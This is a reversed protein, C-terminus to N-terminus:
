HGLVYAIIGTSTKVGLKRMIIAKASEVTRPSIGMAKGIAKATMGKAVLHAINRERYTLPQVCVAHTVHPSIVPMGRAANILYQLSDELCVVAHHHKLVSPTMCTVSAVLVTKKGEVIKNAFQGGVLLVLDAEDVVDVFEAGINANTITNAILDGILTKVLMAIKM